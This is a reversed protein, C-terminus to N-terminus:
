FRDPRIVAVLLYVFVVAAVIAAIVQVTAVPAIATGGGAV